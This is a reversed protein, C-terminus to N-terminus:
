LLVTVCWERHGNPPSQRELVGSRQPKPTVPESDEAASTRKVTLHEHELYLCQSLLSLLFQV